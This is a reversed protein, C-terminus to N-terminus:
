SRSHPKSLMTKFSRSCQKLIVQGQWWFTKSWKCVTGLHYHKFVRMSRPLMYMPLLHCCCKPLSTIKSGNMCLTSFIWVCQDTNWCCNTIWVHACLHLIIRIPYFHTKNYHWTLYLLKNRYCWFCGIFYQVFHARAQLNLIWRTFNIDVKGVLDTLYLTYM